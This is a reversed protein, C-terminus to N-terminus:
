ISHNTGLFIACILSGSVYDRSQVRSHVMNCDNCDRSHMVPASLRVHGPAQEFTVSNHNQLTRFLRLFHQEKTRFIIHDGLVFPRRRFKLPNEPRFDLSRWFFYLQECAVEIPRESRLTM